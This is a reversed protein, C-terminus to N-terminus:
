WNVLVKDSGAHYETSIAPKGLLVAWALIFMSRINNFKVVIPVNNGCALFSVKM